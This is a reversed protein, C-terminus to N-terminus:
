NLAPLIPGIMPLALVSAPFRINEQVAQGLSHLLINYPVSDDLALKKSQHAQCSNPHSVTTDFMHAVYQSSAPQLKMQFLVGFRERASRGETTDHSQGYSIGLVYPCIYQDTHPEGEIISSSTM